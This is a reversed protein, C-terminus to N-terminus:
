KEQEKYQTMPTEGLTKLMDSIAIQPLLKPFDLPTPRDYADNGEKYGVKKERGWYSLILVSKKWGEFKYFFM